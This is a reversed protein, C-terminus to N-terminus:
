LDVFVESRKGDKAGINCELVPYSATYLVQGCGAPRILSLVLVCM